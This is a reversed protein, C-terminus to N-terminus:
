GASRTAWQVSIVAGKVRPLLFLTLALALPLWIAYLLWEPPQALQELWLMAPGIIHLVILMTFYPPADDARFQALDLGCSECQPRVKLYGRFIAGRGCDPCRRSFGLRLGRWLPRRAAGDDAEEARHEIPMPM